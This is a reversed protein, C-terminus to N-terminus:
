WPLPVERYYSATGTNQETVLFPQVILGYADKAKESKAQADKQLKEHFRSRTEEFLVLQGDFIDDISYETELVTRLQKVSSWPVDRQWIELRYCYTHHSIPSTCRSNYKLHHPGRTYM